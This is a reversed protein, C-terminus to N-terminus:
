PPKKKEKILQHVLVPGRVLSSSDGSRDKGAADEATGHHPRDADRRVPELNEAAREGDINLECSVAASRFAIAVAWFLARHFCLAEDLM